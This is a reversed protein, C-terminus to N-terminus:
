KAALAFIAEREARRKAEEAEFTSLRHQTELVERYSAACVAWADRHFRVQAVQAELEALRINLEAIIAEYHVLREATKGDSKRAARAISAFSVPM